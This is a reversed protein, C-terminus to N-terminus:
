HQLHESVSHGSVFPLDAEELEFHRDGLLSATSTQIIGIWFEESRVSTGDLDMLVAVLRDMAEGAAESRVQEVQAAHAAELEAREAEM